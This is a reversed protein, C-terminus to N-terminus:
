REIDLEIELELVAYRAMFSSGPYYEVSNVSAHDVTSTFYDDSIVMSIFADAYLQVAYVADEEEFGDYAIMIDFLYRGRVLGITEDDVDMRRPDILIFPKEIGKALYDSGVKVTEISKLEYGSATAILDLYTQYNNDIQDTLADLIVKSSYFTSM